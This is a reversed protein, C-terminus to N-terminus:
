HILGRAYLKLGSLLLDNLSTTRVTQLQGFPSYEAQTICKLDNYLPQSKNVSTKSFTNVSTPRNPRQVRCIIYVQWPMLRQKSLDFLETASFDIKIIM